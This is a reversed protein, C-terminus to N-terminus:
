QGSRVLRVHLYHNRSYYFAGGYGFYVYWANALYYAHPSSSWFHSSITNPFYATDISPNVRNYNVIGQLEQWTPVRWDTFGCLAESNSGNVLSGGYLYFNGFGIGPGSVNYFDAWGAL